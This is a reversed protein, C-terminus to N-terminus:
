KGRSLGYLIKERPSLATLDPGRRAPAGAPVALSRGREEELHQRIRDVAARAQGLSAELEEVTSGTLFEEPITPNAALLAQRYKATAEQLSNQLRRIEEERRALQARLRDGQSQLDRVRKFPVLPEGAAAQGASGSEATGSGEALSPGSSPLGQEEQPPRGGREPQGYNRAVSELVRDFSGGAAPQFVIDASVVDLIRRVEFAGEEKEEGEVVMDASIGIDPVPLGEAQDRLVQEVLHFIGDEIFRLNAKVGEEWRPSTYVGVLNRVSKERSHDAFAAVGEWCPLSERLVEEPYYFGNRSEGPRIITVEVLRRGPDKVQPETTYWLSQAQRSQSGRVQGAGPAETITETV